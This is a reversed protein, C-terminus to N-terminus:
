VPGNKKLQGDAPEVSVVSFLVGAACRINVSHVDMVGCWLDFRGDM